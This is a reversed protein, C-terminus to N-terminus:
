HLAVEADEITEIQTDQKEDAIEFQQKMFNLFAKVQPYQYAGSQSLVMYYQRPRFFRSLSVAQIKQAFLADELVFRDLMSVGLGQSVCRVLCDQHMIIHRPNLKVGYRQAQRLINQWLSSHVSPAVIPMQAIDTLDLMNEPPLKAQPSAFLTIDTKFLPIALFDDPIRESALIGVDVKNSSIDEFLKSELMEPILRFSVEPYQQSFVHVLDPLVHNYFSFMSSITLPGKVTAPLHALQGRLADIQSFLLMAKSLLFKGEETLVRNTKSGSFLKVGFEQELSRIQYTLASQNRNMKTMAATMSGCTATYYFGRLWQIFDGSFEPLM